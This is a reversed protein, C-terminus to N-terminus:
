KVRMGDTNFAVSFSSLLRHQVFEVVRKLSMTHIPYFGILDADFTLILILLSTLSLFSPNILNHTHTYPCYDKGDCVCDHKM